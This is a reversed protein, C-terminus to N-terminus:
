SHVPGCGPLRVSDSRRAPDLCRPKQGSSNITHNPAALRHPHPGNQVAAQPGSFRDTFARVPILGISGQGDIM